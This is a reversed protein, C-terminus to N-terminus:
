FFILTILFVVIALMLVVQPPYGETTRGKELQALHRHVADLPQVVSPLKKSSTSRVPAQRQKEIQRILSRITEEAEVLEEELKAKTEELGNTTPVVATPNSDTLSYVPPPGVPVANPLESSQQPSEEGGPAGGAESLRHIEAEKPSLFMCRLKHQHIAGKDRSELTHWIEALPLKENISPDLAITQILFKDKCRYDLPPEEKFPQLIVQVEIESYPDIYGANPRVCYQKPATTKVKFIIPEAGPNKLILIEKSLVHLPRQFVLATSPSLQVSM